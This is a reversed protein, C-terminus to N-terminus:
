WDVRFMNRKIETLVSIGMIACATEIDALTYSGKDKFPKITEDLCKLLFSTESKTLNSITGEKLGHLLKHCRDCVVLLNELCDESFSKPYKIHHVAEAFDGCLECRHNAMEYAEKRLEDWKQSNLYKQYRDKFNTM